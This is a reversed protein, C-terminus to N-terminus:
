SSLFLAWVPPFPSVTPPAHLLPCCWKHVSNLRLPLPTNFRDTSASSESCHLHIGATHLPLSPPFEMRNSELNTWCIAQWLLRTKKQKIPAKRHRQKFSHISHKGDDLSKFWWQGTSNSSHLLLKISSNYWLTYVTFTTNKAHWRSGKLVKRTTKAPEIQETCCFGNERESQTRNSFFLLSLKPLSESHM